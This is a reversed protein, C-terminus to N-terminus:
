MEIVDDAPGQIQKQREYEALVATLTENSMGQFLMKIEDVKIDMKVGQPRHIEWNPHYTMLLKELLRDSSKIGREIAAAELREILAVHQEGAKRTLHDYRRAFDEDYRYSKPNCVARMQRATCGVAIAAEPRSYGNAILDLFREKVDDTVDDVWQGRIAM